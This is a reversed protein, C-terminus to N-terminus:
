KLKTIPKFEGSSCLEEQLDLQGKDRDDDDIYDYRIHLNIVIKYNKGQYPLAFVVQDKGQYNVDPLYAYAYGPSHFVTKDIM